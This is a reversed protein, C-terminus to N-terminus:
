RVWGYFRQVQREPGIFWVDALNGTEPAKGSYFVVHEDDVVTFEVPLWESPLMVDAHVKVERLKTFGCGSAMIIGGYPAPLGQPALEDVTLLCGADADPAAEVAGDTVDPGADLPPSSDTTGSDRCPERREVAESGCAVLAATWVAVAIRKM